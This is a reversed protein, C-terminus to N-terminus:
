DIYKLGMGYRMSTEDALEQRWKVEALGISRPWADDAQCSTMPPYQGMRVILITGSKFNHSTEIYSGQSSYNRMVGDSACDAAISAYPQCTIAAEIPNRPTTREITERDTKAEM